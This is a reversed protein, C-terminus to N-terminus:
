KRWHQKQPGLLGKARFTFHHVIRLKLILSSIVFEPACFPKRSTKRHQMELRLMYQKKVQVGTKFIQRRLGYSFCLRLEKLIAYFLTRMKCFEDEEVLM